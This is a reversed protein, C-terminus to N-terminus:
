KRLFLVATGVHWSRSWLVRSWLQKSLEPFRKFLRISTVGKFIKIMSIPSDFTSIVFVFLHIHDPMVELQIIKYGKTESLTNSEELLEKIKGTLISKGNPCWVFHYNLTTSQQVWSCKGM